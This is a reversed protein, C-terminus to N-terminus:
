AQNGEIVSEGQKHHFYKKNVDKENVDAKEPVFNSGLVFGKYLIERCYL